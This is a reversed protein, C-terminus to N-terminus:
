CGLKKGRFRNSDKGKVEAKIQMRGEREEPRVKIYYDRDSFGQKRVEERVGSVFEVVEQPWHFTPFYGCDRLMGNLDEADRLDRCQLLTPVTYTVTGDRERRVTGKGLIIVRTRRLVVNCWRTDQERVQNRMNEMTVRVIERKDSTEKGIDMDLLKLARQAERVKQETERISDRVRLKIRNNTLSDTANDLEKVKAELKEVRAEMRYETVERDIREQKIGDSITSMVEEVSKTLVGLGERLCDRVEIPSKQIVEEVRLRMVEDIKHFVEGMDFENLRRRINRLEEQANPSRDEVTRKGKDKEPVQRGTEPPAGNGPQQVRPRLPTSAAETEMVEEVMRAEGENEGERNDQRRVEERPTGGMQTSGGGGQDGGGAKEGQIGVPNALRERPGDRGTNGGSPGKNFGNRRGEEEYSDLLRNM